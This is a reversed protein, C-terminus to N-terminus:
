NYCQSRAAMKLLTEVWGVSPSLIDSSFSITFSFSFIFLAKPAGTKPPLKPAKRFPVLCPLPVLPEANVSLGEAVAGFLGM